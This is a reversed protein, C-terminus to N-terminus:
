WFFWDPAVWGPPAAQRGLVIPILDQLWVPLQDRIPLLAQFTGIIILVAFPAANQASFISPAKWEEDDGGDDQAMMSVTTSRAASPREGDELGNSAPAAPPASKKMFSAALDDM